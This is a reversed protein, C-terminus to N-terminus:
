ASAAGPLPLRKAETLRHYHTIADQGRQWSLCVVEAGLQSPFDVRGQELDQVFVGLRDLEAKTSHMQGLVFGIEQVTNRAAVSAPELAALEGRLRAVDDAGTTLDALLGSVVPILKNAEELSFIKFM